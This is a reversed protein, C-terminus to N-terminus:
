TDSEYFDWVRGRKTAIVVFQFDGPLLKIFDNCFQPVSFEHSLIERPPNIAIKALVKQMRRETSGPRPPTLLRREMAAVRRAVLEDIKQKPVGLVLFGSM